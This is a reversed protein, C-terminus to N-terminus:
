ELNRDLLNRLIVVNKWEKKNTTAQRANPIVFECEKISKGKGNRGEMKCNGEPILFEIKMGEMNWMLEYGKVWCRFIAAVKPLVRQLIKIFSLRMM